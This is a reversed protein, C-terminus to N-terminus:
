LKYPLWQLSEISELSKNLSELFSEINKLKVIERQRKICGSAATRANKILLVKILLM